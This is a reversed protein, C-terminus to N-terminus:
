GPRYLFCFITWGHGGTGQLPQAGPLQWDKLHNKIKSKRGESETTLEQIKM